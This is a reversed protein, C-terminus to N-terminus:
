ACFRASIPCVSGQVVTKGRVLWEWTASRRKGDHLYYPPAERLPSGSSPEFSVVNAGWDALDKAAWAAAGGSTIEIVNLGRLLM